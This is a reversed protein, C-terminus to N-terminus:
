VIVCVAWSFYNKGSVSSPWLPSFCFDDAYYLPSSTPLLTAYGAFLWVSRGNWMSSKSCLWNVVLLHEGHCLLSYGSEGASGFMNMRSDGGETHTIHLRRKKRKLIARSVRNRRSYVTMRRFSNHLRFQLKLNVHGIGPTALPFQANHTGQFCFTPPTQSPDRGNIRTWVKQKKSNSSNVSGTVSAM